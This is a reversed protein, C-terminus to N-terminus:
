RYTTTRYPEMYGDGYKTKVLRPQICCCKLTAEGPQASEKHKHVSTWFIRQESYLYVTYAANLTVFGPRCKDRYLPVCDQDFHFGDAKLSLLEMFAMVFVGCDHGYAADAYTASRLFALIFAIRASDILAQRNKDAANPLSDYVVFCHDRLDVVQLLWHGETTKLLPIFVYRVDAYPPRKFTDWIMAAICAKNHLTVNMHHKLFISMWCLKLYTHQWRHLLETFMDIALNGICYRGFKDGAGPNPVVNILGRLWSAPVLKPLCEKADEEWVKSNSRLGKYRGRVTNLLEKETASLSATIYAALVEGESPEDGGPAKEARMGEDTLDKQKKRGRHHWTPDIYPTGYVAAPKRCRPRRKMCAVINSSDGAGEGEYPVGEVDPNGSSDSGATRDVDGAPNAVNEGSQGLPPDACAEDVAADEVAVDITEPAMPRGHDVSSVVEEVAVDEGVGTTAAGTGLEVNGVGSAPGPVLITMDQPLRTTSGMLGMDVRWGKEANCARSGSMTHGVDEVAPSPVVDPAGVSDGAKEEGTTVPADPAGGDGERSGHEVAEGLDIGPRGLCEMKTEIQIAEGIDGGLQEGEEQTALAKSLKLRAELEHVRSMWFQLRRETQRLKEREEHAEQRARHLRDEYSLVGGIEEPRPHLVPIILEFADYRGRHDVSDWCALCPFMGKDYKAFRTTHEYFWVQLLLSFGNMQVDSVHGELKRQMEEVAEILVRWVAEAWAYEGLRRVDQMYTQMSWAAGYSTRPFMLGSMVMWAYLSLWLEVKEPENNADLLKKMVKTYNRFVPKKSGKERKLKDSKETAYQAMRRRVMRAIDITSFDGEAFEVTKGTVPLGTFFAVDYMSFPVLRGALRFAKRRPVWAKVLATTLDRQMPFQQYELIPKLITGKIAERHYPQVTKNFKCIKDLTCRGRVSVPVVGRGCRGDKEFAFGDGAAKRRWRRGEISPERRRKRSRGQISGEPSDADDDGVEDGESGSAGVEGGSEQVLSVSDETSGGAESPVFERGSSMQLDEDMISGKTCQETRSSGAGTPVSSWARRKGAARSKMSCRDFRFLLEVGGSCSLFGVAVAFFRWVLRAGRGSGVEIVAVGNINGEFIGEGKGKQKLRQEPPEVCPVRPARAVRTGKRQWHEENNSKPIPLVSQM